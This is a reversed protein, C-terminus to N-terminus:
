RFLVGLGHGATFFEARRFPGAWPSRFYEIVAQWVGLWESNTDHVAIVKAYKGFNTLDSLCGSYSHDGDILLLDIWVNNSRMKTEDLIREPETLSNAQIFTWRPNTYLHGCNEKDVSWLHGGEMNQELGVLIAATSIGERVGIEMVSGMSHSAIWGICNEIDSPARLKKQYEEIEGDTM